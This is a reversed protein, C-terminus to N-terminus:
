RTRRATPLVDAADGDQETLLQGLHARADSLYRKVAGESIKLTDAVERTTLDDFYRLVVCARERPGLHALAADVDAKDTALTDPADSTTAAALKPATRTWLRRRRYTDLYANLIARRVYAELWEVDATSRRRSFTRILGEQVLDEAAPLNGTLLYAYGVLAPGRERALSGVQEEWAM